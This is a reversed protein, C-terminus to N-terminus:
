CTWKGNAFTCGDWKGSATAVAATIKNNTITYTAQLKAPDMLYLGPGTTTSSDVTGTWSTVGPTEAVYAIVATQVQHAETDASQVKGRGFFDGVNLVVVAAIIGLIAIVVLLEILTFGGEGRRVKKM